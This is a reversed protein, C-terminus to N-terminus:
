CGVMSAHFSARTSGRYGTGQDRRSNDHFSPDSRTSGRGHCISPLHSPDHSEGSEDQRLIVMPMDYLAKNNTIHIGDRRRIEVGRSFSGSCMPSLTPSSLTWYSLPPCISGLLLDNFRNITKFEGVAETSGSAKDSRRLAIQAGIRQPIVPQDRDREMTPITDFSEVM